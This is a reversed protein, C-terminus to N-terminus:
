RSRLDPEELYEEMLEFYREILRRYDERFRTYNAQDAGSRIRQRLEELTMEPVSRPEFDGATEGLREEEDEDRKHVSEEVELMRSLINQQREIMLRDTSGGRLDNIADEMQEALREMESMLRDGERGSRRQLQRLQERIVNQQRAMQDLREMHDQTLREGQLDNIFDQIQQNLQQQQGSM